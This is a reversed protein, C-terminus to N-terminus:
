AELSYYVHELRRGVVDPSFAKRTRAYAGLCMERWGETDLSAIRRTATAMADVDGNEVLVGTVENLIVDEAGTEEFAVVPRAAAAAEMAVQGFAECRSCVTVVAAKKFILALKEESSVWGEGVHWFGRDDKYSYSKGGFGVFTVDSKGLALLNQAIRDKLAWWIDRGKVFPSKEHGAESGVIVIGDDSRAIPVGEGQSVCKTALGRSLCNPVVWITGYRDLGADFARRKMYNSPVTFALDGRRRELFRRKRFRTQRDLLRYLWNRKGVAKAACRLGVDYHEIGALWWEDHLTIVLKGPVRQLQWLSITDNGIWHLHTICSGGTRRVRIQSFWNASLKTDAKLGAVRLVIQEVLFGFFGIWRAIASQKGASHELDKAAIKKISLGRSTMASSLRNTAVAAGGGEFSYALYTVNRKKKQPFVEQAAM